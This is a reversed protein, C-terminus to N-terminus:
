ISKIRDYFETLDAKKLIEEHISRFEKLNDEGLATFMEDSFPNQGTFLDAEILRCLLLINQRSLNLVIKCNQRMGPSSLIAEFIKSKEKPEYKVNSM